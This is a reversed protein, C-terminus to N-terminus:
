FQLCLPSLDFVFDSGDIPALNQLFGWATYVCGLVTLLLDFFFLLNFVFAKANQGSCGESLSKRRKVMTSYLIDKM